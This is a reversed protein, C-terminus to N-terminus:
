DSPAWLHGCRRMQSAPQHLCLDLRHPPESPVSGHPTGHAPDRPHPAGTVCRCCLGAGWTPALLGCARGARYGWLPTGVCIGGCLHRRVSFM